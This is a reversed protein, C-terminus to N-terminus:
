VTCHGGAVKVQVKKLEIKMYLINLADFLFSCRSRVQVSIPNGYKSDEM